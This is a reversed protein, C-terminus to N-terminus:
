GGGAISILIVEDGDKLRKSDDDVKVGNLFVQYDYEYNDFRRQSSVIESVNEANIPEGKKLGEVTQSVVVKLKIKAM